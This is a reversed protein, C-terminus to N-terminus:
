LDMIRAIANKVIQSTGGGIPLVLSDRVYRQMDFEMSYGYGGFIQMGELAVHKAAETAFLKAMNAELSCPLGQEELWAAQYTLLRAAQVQTAMEALMHRIAQLKSIPRGYQVRNKAYEVAEDLAGQAVGVGCAAVELRETDLTKLLLQMGKGICEPGGAVNEMPVAVNQFTIECASSGKYGLKKIHRTKVGEARGDVIMISLGEAPKPSKETRVLALIYDAEDAGTIFIKEGDIVFNDGQRSAVTEIAALDSGANPETLAYAFLIEGNALRPLYRRKQEENAIRYVDVGGYFACMVYVWGLAPYRRSLEEVVIIASLIQRGLGGYAEPITLGAVGLERLKNFLPRPFEDSEDLKRILEKPCEKNIFDQMTRKLMKQDETLEFDM